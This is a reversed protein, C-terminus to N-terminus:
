PFIQKNDTVASDGILLAFDDVVGIEPQVAGTRPQQPIQQAIAEEAAAHCKTSFEQAHGGGERVVYRVVPPEAHHRQDAAVHQKQRLWEYAVAAM